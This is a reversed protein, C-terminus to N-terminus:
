RGFRKAIESPIREIWKLRDSGDTLEQVRYCGVIGNVNTLVVYLREWETVGDRERTLKVCLSGDSSPQDCVFGLSDARRCHAAIGRNVYKRGDHFAHVTTTSAM